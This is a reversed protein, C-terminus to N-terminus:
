APGERVARLYIEELAARAPHVSLILGDQAVIARVVEPTDNRLDALLLHLTRGVVSCELVFPLMRLAPAIGEAGAALEVELRVQSSSLDALSGFALMRRRLIGVLDALAEAEALNHTCLLITRGEARFEAILDRVDRAGGPDLGATPEDLFLVQPEHLVARILALRQKMGKSWTGFPKDRAEWLELKRLWYEGRTRLDASGMGYLRGFLELNERGSMRDYCGPAETLL